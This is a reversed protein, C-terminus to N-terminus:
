QNVSTGAVPDLSSMGLSLGVHDRLDALMEAIGLARLAIHPGSIRLPDCTSRIRRGDYDPRMDRREAHLEIGAILKGSYLFLM